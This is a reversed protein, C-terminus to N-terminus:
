EAWAVQNRGRAKATYMADDVRKTWGVFVEGPRFQAVGFSVTVPASASRVHSEVLTRIADAKRAAESESYDPMLIVFEEGGWRAFVDTTRLSAQVLRCIDLLVQDGAPHGYQDNIVKFHDIDFMCMSLPEHHRNVRDIEVSARMEFYRRNWIGTLADISALRDLEANVALLRDQAAVLEATRQAVRLELDRNQEALEHEAKRLNQNVRQLDGFAEQLWIGMKEFSIGLERLERVRSRPIPQTFNGESINQTARNLASLPRSITAAALLGMPVTILLALGALLIPTHISIGILETFDREPALVLILWDPHGVELASSMAHALYREGNLSVEFSRQAPFKALDPELLQLKRAAVRTLPDSSDIIPLRRPAVAVNQAHDRRVSSDFPTEGSSSAILYGTRDFLFAQGNASIKLGQLFTNLGNLTMSAVLVGQLSDSADFYPRGYHSILVPKDQGRALSVSMHWGNQTFDRVERYWPKGPPDDHPDYNRRADILQLTVGNLDARYRNLVRNTGDDLRRVILSDKDGRIVMLMDRQETVAGFGAIGPFQELQGAFHTALAKPNGPALWGQKILAVDTDIANRPESIYRGLRQDIRGTIEGLLQRALATIAQQSAEYSLYGVVGAASVALVTFAAILITRLAVNKPLLDGASQTNESLSRETGAAPGSSETPMSISGLCSFLFWGEANKSELNTLITVIGPNRLVKAADANQKLILRKQLAM